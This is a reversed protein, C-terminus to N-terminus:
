YHLIRKVPVSFVLNFFCSKEYYLYLILLFLELFETVNFNLFSIKVRAFTYYRYAVYINVLFLKRFLERTYFLTRLIKNAVLIIFINCWQIDQELYILTYKFFASSALVMYKKTSSSFVTLLICHFM